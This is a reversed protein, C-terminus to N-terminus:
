PFQSINNQILEYLSSILLPRQKKFETENKQFDDNERLENTAKIYHNHEKQIENKEYVLTLIAKANKLSDSLDYLGLNKDIQEIVIDFHFTLATQYDEWNEYNLWEMITMFCYQESSLKKLADFDFWYNRRLQYKEEIISVIKDLAEEKNDKYKILVLETLTYREENISKITLAIDYNCKKLHRIAVDQKVGTKNSTLAIMKDAFHQEAKDLDGNTIELLTQGYKLGIPIRQRLQELQKQYLKDM